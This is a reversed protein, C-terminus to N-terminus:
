KKAPKAKVYGVPNGDSDVVCLRYMTYDRVMDYRPKHAQCYHLVNTRCGLGYDTTFKEEVKKAMSEMVVNGCAHCSVVRDRFWRKFWNM